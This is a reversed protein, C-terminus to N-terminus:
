VVFSNLALPYAMTYQIIISSSSSCRRSAYYSICPRTWEVKRFLLWLIVCHELPEFNLNFLGPLCWYRLEISFAVLCSDSFKMLLPCFTFRLLNFFPTPYSRFGSASYLVQPHRKLYLLLLPLFFCASTDCPESRSTSASEALILTLAQFVSFLSSDVTPAAM